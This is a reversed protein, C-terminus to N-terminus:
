DCTPCSPPLYAGTETEYPWSAIGGMDYVASYGLGALAAAAQASRVGTRCYVVVAADKDPLLDGAQDAIADSPLLLAGPIHGAQFEEAQRVDLVIALGQDMMDKAEQASIKQAGQEVVGPDPSPPAAPDSAQISQAPACGAALAFLLLLVGPFLLQKM